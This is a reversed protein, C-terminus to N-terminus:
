SHRNNQHDEKRIYTITKNQKKNWESIDKFTGKLENLDKCGKILALFFQKNTKKVYLLCNVSKQINFTSLWM